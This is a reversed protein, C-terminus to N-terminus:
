APEPKRAGNRGAAQGAAAQPVELAELEGIM